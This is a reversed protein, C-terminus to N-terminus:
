QAMRIFAAIDNNETFDFRGKEPESVNWFVYTGITNLGMARAMRMRDRWAERPIRTYHMEGSIIQFPQGDLLFSQRGLTFEHRVGRRPTPDGPGGPSAPRATSHVSQDASHPQAVPYVVASLLLCSLFGSLITGHNNM